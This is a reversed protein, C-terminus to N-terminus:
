TLWARVRPPKREGPGVPIDAPVGVIVAAVVGGQPPLGLEQKVDATNLLPLAFGICCTGLGAATAELMLNQAALWCDAEVFPGHVEYGIAVLTGAGHFIDFAPDQLRDRLAQTGPSLDHAAEQQTLLLAKARASYQRLTERNQVVAFAWPERHMATPAQVAARLLKEVSERGVPDPLYSRVSRRRYILNAADAKQTATMHVGLSSRELGM